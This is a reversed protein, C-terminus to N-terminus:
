AAAVYTVSKAKLTIWGSAGDKEARGKMRLVGEEEEKPGELLEVVEDVDLQRVVKADAGHAISEHIPTAKRCTYYPKCPRTNGVTVWGQSDGAFTRVMARLPAEMKESKPGVLVEVVEDEELTRISQGEGTTQKSLATEKRIVYHKTSAKLYITDAKVGNIAVWGTVDDKLAKVQVRLIKKEEEEKPEDLAVVLEGVALKRVVKCKSMNFEDTIGTVAACTYHKDSLEAFFVGAHDRVTIFGQAGDKMAKVRARLVDDFEGTVRRPGEVLELIEESKLSRIEGEKGDPDKDLPTDKSTAYYPKGCKKLFPTGKNGSVTIWGELGDKLSRGRIRHMGLEDNSKPGELLEIVEGTEAKRIPKEKGLDFSGTIAIEKVVTLYAQLFEVLRRKGIAGGQIRRAGLRAPESELDLGELSQLHEVIKDESISDGGDSLKEFYTDLSIGLSQAEDRLAKQIKITVAEGIAACAAAFVKSTSTRKTGAADVKQKMKNLEAKAEVMPGKGTAKAAKPIQEKLCAQAEEVAKGLQSALADFEAQVALPTAFAEREADEKLSVLPKAAEEFKELVATVADLKDKAPGTIADAEAREKLEIHANRESEEKKAYEKKAVAMQRKLKELRTQSETVKPKLKMLEGRANKLAADQRTGLDACRSKFWEAVKGVSQVVAEIKKEADQVFTSYPSIAELFVTGQNGQATVWGTVDKSVMKCQMRTMGTTEDKRSEGSAELIEGIQVKSLCKTGEIAFNPTITINKIVKFRRQFMEKFRASSIGGEAGAVHEFMAKRREASFTLDERELMMPLKELYGTFTDEDISGSAKGGNAEKFIDEHTSDNSAMHKRLAEFVVCVAAAVLFEAGGEELLPACAKTVEDIEEEAAKIQGTADTVLKMAVFKSEYENAIASAASLDTSAKDFREKLDDISKAQVEDKDPDNKQRNLFVQVEDLKQQATAVLESVKECLSRAVEATVESVDAEECPKVGETCKVVEAEALTLKEATEEMDALRRHGAVDKKFRVLRESMGKIREQQKAIEDIAAKSAENNYRRIELTKATIFTRTKSILTAAESAAKDCAALTVTAEDVPLVEVGSLFPLEAEAAAEMATDVDNLKKEIDKVYAGCLAQERKGKSSTRADELGKQAKKNREVLDKVADAQSAPAAKSLEDLTKAAAKLTKIGENTSTELDLAAEESLEERGAMNTVKKVDAEIATLRKGEDAIATKTKIVKEASTSVKRLRALEQNVIHLRAQLQSVAGAAKGKLEKIKADLGKKAEAAVQSAEKEMAQAKEGAKKLAAPAMGEPSELPEAASQLKELTEEATSLQALVETAIKAYKREFTGKTMESLKKNVDEELRTQLGALDETASDVLGEPLRKADILKQKLWGRAQGISKEAKSSNDEALKLAKAIEEEDMEEADEQFPAESEECKAVAEEAKDVKERSQAIMHQVKVSDRKTAVENVIKKLKEASEKARALVPELEEKLAAADTSKLKLELLKITQVVAPETSAVLKDIAAMDEPTMDDKVMAVVKEVEEDASTVKDILANLVKKANMRTQLDLKIRKAPTLKKTAEQLRAQLATLEDLQSKNPESTAAGAKKLTLVAVNVAKGAATVKNQAEATAKDVDAISQKVEDNVESPMDALLPSVMEGLSEVAGEAETVAEVAMPMLKKIDREQFAPKPAEVKKPASEPQPKAETTPKGALKAASSKLKNLEITLTAQQTRLKPSLKQFALFATAGPPGDAKAAQVEETLSSQAAKLCEQQEQLQEMHAAKEEDNSAAKAAALAEKAGAVVEEVQKTAAEVRPMWKSSATAPKAAATAPKGASASAKPAAIGTVATNPQAKSEVTLAGPEVKDADWPLKWGVRPPKTSSSAGVSRAFVQTGGIKDGFWWGSFDKGDREDWFYLFVKLDDYDPIKEKKEYWRKGHSEGKDVYTGVVTRVVLEDTSMKSTVTL